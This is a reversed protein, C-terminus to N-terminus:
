KNEIGLLEVTFILTSNPAIKAGAGREGYALDSPIYFKYKSGVPMLAVGETWGKIVGNLPFSIPQGRKYSSDFETGDLLTGQYHVKVTDTAEPKKGNGQTLVEYQLGSATVTIGDKKANEALFAEGKAKNEAGSAKREAMQKEQKKRFFDQKIQTSEAAELKLDAGSLVDGIAANLAAPDIEAGLGKISQGVDMGMAYSFKQVESDLVVSTQEAKENNCASLGAMVVMAMAIKTKM